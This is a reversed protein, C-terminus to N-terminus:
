DRNKISKYVSLAKIFFILAFCIFLVYIGYIGVKKDIIHMLGYLANGGTSSSPNNSPTKIFNYYVDENILFVLSISLLGYIIFEWVKKFKTKKM